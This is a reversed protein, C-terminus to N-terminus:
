AGQSSMMDAMMKQWHATAQGGFSQWQAMVAEPSMNDLHNQMHEQLKNTMMTNLDTVDPLGLFRRAEEPTCDVTINLKM